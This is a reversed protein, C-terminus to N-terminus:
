ELWWSIHLRRGPQQELAARVETRLLDFQDDLGELVIDDVHSVTREPPKPGALLAAAADAAARLASGLNDHLENAQAAKRLVVLLTQSEDFRTDAESIAAVADLLPWSAAKLSAAVQGASSLSRALPQLEDPLPTEALVHALVVDDTEVGLRVVLDRGTVASALRAAGGLDLLGAHTELLTVLDVAAPRSESSRNRVGASLAALTSASRLPAVQVGFVAAARTVAVPWLAADPLAPDRLQLDDTVQEVSTVPVNAGAKSWQKDDLLAWASVLLNEVQRVLGYPALWARIRAMPIVTLGEEAARAVFRNRWPFTATTFVYHNEHCEGVGLANAVRRLQARRQQEVPDVRGGSGVAQTVHALVVNLDVRRVETSGPEFRPHDPYQSSLMQDLLNTLADRLTAGVPPQLTVGADLTAFPPVDGYSTDIDRQDAKAAGYAQKVVEGLSDRLSRRRNNLMLRAQPRQDAPLSAAHQDFREGTGALLHELVVLTGLDELRAASLFSPIWAVTRSVVGSERLADIRARDDHPGMGDPDFPYDVVLRWTDGKARLVDDPLQDRDRVNGFVVDITRKSGRWVAAHPTEVLLSEASEIGLQEFVLRRLLTRRAGTTDETRVQELVSDYDVGSLAVSVLPDTGEGVQLEGIQQAWAKVKGLVTAVEMGPIPAAVTGHNLYALRSATLNKLAAVQPALAAVLLTKALRDDTRFAAARVARGADATDHKALDEETLGNETLLVPRLKSRYLDRAIGFHLKMEDTLPTDGGEVMVDYLDGVPIVDSVRLRDRGQSLLLAMVKLATRERQLLGSLAVLTDVLAPSFPYVKAFASEGSGQEDVLLADWARSNRKVAALAEALAVEANGDIPTLLRRYAIEPLNKAGITIKNFRDEWWSFTEGIAVRQAGPVSDGLFDKLDRQRAVFSVLPLARVGIGTEILKAVKSGETGVFEPDALHSALWLVLEDLFLVVAQYGLSKAHEVIVGLGTAIDVWEAARTYGTFYTAVLASALRARAPDDPAAKAAADYSEPDWGTGFSGWGTSAGASLRAFFAEDGMESRRTAADTLLGDTNHLVPPPVEPHSRATAALYGSFLAQELSAAGILHFDLTMLKADALAGQHDAVVRQLGPLARAQANGALLLHLVAMFHSKGSGFSGHIFAAQDTRNILAQTVYGVAIDFSEALEPTVVYEDLTSQAHEVGSQLQLVFDTASVREPIRLADRLMMAQTSSTSPDTM